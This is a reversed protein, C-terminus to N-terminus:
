GLLRHFNLRLGAFTGSFEGQKAEGPKEALAPQHSTNHKGRASARTFTRKM